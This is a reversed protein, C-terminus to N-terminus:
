VGTNEIDQKKQEEFMRDMTEIDAWTRKENLRALCILLM